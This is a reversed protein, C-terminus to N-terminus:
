DPEPLKLSALFATGGSEDSFVGDLQAQFCQELIAGMAKGPKIGHAILHRGQVIPRPPERWVGLAECRAQFAALIERKEPFFCGALGTLLDLREVSLALRRLAGDEPLVGAPVTFAGALKVVQRTVDNRRWIRAPFTEMGDPTFFCAFVACATLRDDSDCGTRRQAARDLAGCLRRFADEPLAALEPYFRLWGSDRLFCLAEGQHRGHLLFKDWEGGIREVALEEQSLERCLAVTEPAPVFGFRAIFQMGRLVRLPDESFHSSVHRLVKKQLDQLGGHPDIVEGSLPDCMVANVTFDRRASAERYSLDPVTTVMFGRHGAGTKNERRPLAIDIPYHRVKMVGFSMGVTDLPFEASVTHQVTEASLGYVELDFDALPRRSFLDRVGGGALLARGGRHRILEAIRRVARGAPTDPLVPSVGPIFTM